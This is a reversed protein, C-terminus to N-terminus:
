KNASEKSSQPTKDYVLELEDPVGCTCGWWQYVHPELQSESEGLKTM